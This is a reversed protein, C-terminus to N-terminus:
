EEGSMTNLDPIDGEWEPPSVDEFSDTKETRQYHRRAEDLIRNRVYNKAWPEFAMGGDERFKRCAEFLGESGAAEFDEVDGDNRAIKRALTAIYPEFKRHLEPTLNVGPTRDGPKSFLEPAAEWPTIGLAEALKKVTGRRPDQQGNEIRHIAVRSVGSLGALGEQTLGREERFKKLEVRL